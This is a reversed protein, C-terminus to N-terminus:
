CSLFTIIKLKRSLLTCKSGGVSRAKGEVEYHSYGSLSCTGKQEMKKLKMERMLFSGSDKEQKLLNEIARKM